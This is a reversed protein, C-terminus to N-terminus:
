SAHDREKDRRAFAEAEAVMQSFTPPEPPAADAIIQMPTKGRAAIILDAEGYAKAILVADIVEHHADGNSDRTPHTWSALLLSAIRERDSERLFRDHEEFGLAVAPAKRERREFRWQNFRASALLFAHGAMARVALAILLLALAQVFPSLTHM